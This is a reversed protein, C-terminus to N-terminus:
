AGPVQGAVPHEASTVFAGPLILTRRGPDTVEPPAPSSGMGNGVSVGM